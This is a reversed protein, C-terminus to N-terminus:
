PSSTGNCFKLWSLFMRIQPELFELVAHLNFEPTRLGNTVVGALYISVLTRVAMTVDTDKRIEGERVAHACLTAFHVSVQWIMRDLADSWPQQGDMAKRFFIVAEKQNEMIFRCRKEIIFMVKDELPVEPMSGVYDNAMDNFRDVQESYVLFAKDKFVAEIETRSIGALEAVDDLSSAEVGREKFCASAAKLVTEQFEMDKMQQISTDKM